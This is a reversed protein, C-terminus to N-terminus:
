LVIWRGGDHRVSMGKYLWPPSFLQRDVFQTHGKGLSAVLEATALDFEVRGEAKLARELYQKFAADFDKVPSARRHAFYTTVYQYVKAAVFAREEPTVDALQPQQAKAQSHLLTVTLLALCALNKM